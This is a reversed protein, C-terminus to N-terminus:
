RIRIGNDTVLFLRGVLSENLIVVMSREVFRTVALRGTLRTRFVILGAYADPPYRRVDAIGKDLTLLARREKKVHALIERDDAGNLGEQVVTDADHGLRHFFQTLETPLNEDIKFKM